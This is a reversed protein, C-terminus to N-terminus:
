RKLGKCIYCVLCLTQVSQHFGLVLESKKKKGSCPLLFLMECNKTLGVNCHKGGGEGGGHKSGVVSDDKLLTPRM